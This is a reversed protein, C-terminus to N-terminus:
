MKKMVVFISHNKGAIKGNSDTRITRLTVSDKVNGGIVDVAGPRVAVVIDTHSSYRTKRDYLKQAKAFTMGNARGRGIIDGLEPVADNDTIRYGWYAKSPDKNKAKISERIYNHHANSFKFQDKTLGAESLMYSITVASWFYIDDEIESLKPKDGVLSCYTERVYISFPREDDRHKRSLVGTNPDITTRGWFNWEKLAAAVISSGNSNSDFKKSHSREKALMKKADALENAFRVKVANQVKTTSSSFYKKVKSREKYILEFLAEDDMGRIKTVSKSKLANHIVNSSGGHQVSISWVVNKMAFSRDSIELGIKPLTSALVEYHTKKIFNHQSKVFDKHDKLGKWTSQFKATGSLAGSAGGADDLIEALKPFNMGLYKMFNRFTGTKTAIQYLGYSFGGTSDKGITEPGRNGVEFTKSLIGLDDPAFLATGGIPKRSSEPIQPSLTDAFAKVQEFGDDILKVCRDVFQKITASGSANFLKSKRKLLADLQALNGSYVDKLIPGIIQSDDEKEAQLIKLAGASGFAGSDILLHALYLDFASLDRDTILGKLLSASKTAEIAAIVCQASPFQIADEGIGAGDADVILMKWAEGTYQYIGHATAGAADVNKVTKDDWHSGSEVWAIAFLYAANTQAFRSQMICTAAFDVKLIEDDFLKIPPIIPINESKDALDFQAVYGIREPQATSEVHVWRIIEGSDDEEHIEGVVVEEGQLISAVITKADDVFADDSSVLPEERLSTGARMVMLKLAM